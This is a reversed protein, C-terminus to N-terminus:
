GKYTFQFVINGEVVAKDKVTIKQPKPAKLRRVTEHWVEVTYEGDADPLKGITFKGDEGTKSFFPTQVVYAYASMWPHVSCACAYVEQKKFFKKKRVEQINPMSLNVKLKPISVNHLFPDSNKIVVEQDKHLTFVHPVYQCGQQNIVVEAPHGYSVMDKANYRRGPLKKIFVVCDKLGGEAGIVLAEPNLVGLGAAERQKVCDIKESINVPEIAKPRGMVTVLGTLEVSGFKIKSAGGSSGGGDVATETGGTGAADDKNHATGGPERAQEKTECGPFIVACGAILVAGLCAGLPSFRNAQM